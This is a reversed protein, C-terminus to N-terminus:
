GVPLGLGLPVGGRRPVSGCDAGLLFSVVFVARSSACAYTKCKSM